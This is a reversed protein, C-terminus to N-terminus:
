ILAARLIAFLGFMANMAIATQTSQTAARSLTAFLGLCLALVGGWWWHPDLLYRSLMFLGSCVGVALYPSMQKLLAPYLLGRFILEEVVPRLVVMVLAALLWYAGENEGLGVLPIPLSELPVGLIFSLTDLLAALAFGMLIVGWLPTNISPGLRLLQWRSSKKDSHLYQNLYQHLFVASLIYTLVYVLVLTQADPNRNLAVGRFNSVLLLSMFFVVHYIALLALPLGFINWAPAPHEPTQVRENLLRLSKGFM